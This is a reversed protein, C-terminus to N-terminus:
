FLLSIGPAGGYFPIIPAESTVLLTQGKKSETARGAHGGKARAVDRL